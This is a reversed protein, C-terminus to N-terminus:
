FSEWPDILREQEHSRIGDEVDVAFGSDPIVTSGDRELAAIIDSALRPKTEEDSFIAFTESGSTIRIEKGARVKALLGPLDRAAEAESIHIVAM